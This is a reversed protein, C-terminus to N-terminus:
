GLLFPYLARDQEFDKRPSFVAEGEPLDAYAFRKRGIRFPKPDIKHHVTDAGTNPTSGGTLGLRRSAAHTFGFRTAGNQPGKGFIQRPQNEIRETIPTAVKAPKHLMAYSEPTIGLARLRANNRKRAKRATTSM